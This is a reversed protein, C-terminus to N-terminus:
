DVNQIADRSRARARTFSFVRVIDFGCWDLALLVIVVVITCRVVLVYVHQRNCTHAHAHRHTRSSKRKREVIMRKILRETKTKTTFVSVVSSATARGRFSCRLSRSPSASRRQFEGAVTRVTRQRARSRRGFGNKKEKRSLFFPFFNILLLCNLGCLGTFSVANVLVRGCPM